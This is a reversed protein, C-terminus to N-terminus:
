YFHQAWHAKASPRHTTKASNALSKRIEDDYGVINTQSVYCMAQSSDHKLSFDWSDRRENRMQYPANFYYFSETSHGKLSSEHGNQDHVPM